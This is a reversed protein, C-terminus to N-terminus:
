FKSKFVRKDDQTYSLVKPYAAKEIIPLSKEIKSEEAGLYKIIFRNQEQDRIVKVIRDNQLPRLVKKKLQVHYVEPFENYFEQMTMSKEKIRGVVEKIFNPNSKLVEYVKKTPGNM